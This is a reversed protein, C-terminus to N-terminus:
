RTGNVHCALSSRRLFTCGLVALGAVSMGGQPDHGGPRHPTRGDLSDEAGDGGGGAPNKRVLPPYPWRSDTSPETEGGRTTVRQWACCLPLLMLARKPTSAPTAWSGPHSPLRVFMCMCNALWTAASSVEASASRSTATEPVTTTLPMEAESINEHYFQSKQLSAYPDACRDGHKGIRRRKGGIKPGSFFDM